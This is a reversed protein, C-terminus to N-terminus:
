QVCYIRGSSNKTDRVRKYADEIEHKLVEDLSSRNEYLVSVANEFEPDTLLRYSMESVVAVQESDATISQEAADTEMDWSIVFGVYNLAVIKRRQKLYFDLAHKM